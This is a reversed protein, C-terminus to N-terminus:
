MTSGKNWALPRKICSPAVRIAPMGATTRARKLALAQSSSTLLCRTVTVLVSPATAANIRAESAIIHKPGQRTKAGLTIVPPHELLLVTDGIRGARRDEVLEAQLRLGDEYEVRGLRRVEIETM